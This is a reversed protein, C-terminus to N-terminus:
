IRATHSPVVNIAQERGQPGVEVDFEITQGEALSKYGSSQIASYHVFVDPAGERSVFGYGKANSFWAVKGRYGAM